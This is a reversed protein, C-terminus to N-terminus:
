SGLEADISELLRGMAELASICRRQAAELGSSDRNEIYYRMGPLMWAAYGSNPDTAAFINRFWPRQPLGQEHLWSRRASMLTRNIDRLTVANPRGAAVAVELRSQLPVAADEFADAAQELATLDADFDLTGARNRLTEIHARIDPAFRTLDLPLLPADALRAAILNTLRTLMLAPEYDDGVVQRYWALTDYNSHYSVGKGGHASLGCSPIGLHCYFGIHDSGGGLDGFPVRDRDGLWAQYATEGPEGRAQPVARAASEILRKLQPSAAVGLDPGMAAADLNIYAVANTMLEDRHTECWEVSGIMGYEEAGWAAFVITRQPVRGQKALTAFSRACELLIITGALPDGAGFGWADHHCGIIVTQEPSTSGPLTALINASRRLSRDQKVAVRVRLDEGGTTRYVFPLGGQWGAPVAAGTMRSLIESAAGWGVPQVPIRPLALDDPDARTANEDAAVFPTLPDGPWDLTVISGRQISTEDAYGGEPYPLGKRYGSDDPDTYIILGVAGAAEAFKAKYGRFNRGYRAIVIRGNVDVGLERLTEFDERTGYNAYVVAATADGNGSYANWGITLDAHATDPDEPLPREIVPLGIFTPRVIEVIGEVPMPLLALFEHRDVQLGMRGFAHTLSDLVLMDGPTGAIHPASGLRDHWSRLDQPTPVANLDREFAVDTATTSSQAVALPFLLCALSLIGSM